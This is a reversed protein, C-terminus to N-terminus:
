VVGVADVIEYFKERYEIYAIVVAKGISFNSYEYVIEGNKYLKCNWTDDDVNWSLHAKVEFKLMQGCVWCAVLVDDGLFYPTWGNTIGAVEVFRAQLQEDPLQRYRIM